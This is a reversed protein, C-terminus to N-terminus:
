LYEKEKFRLYETYNPVEFGLPRIIRVPIKEMKKFISIALRHAGDLLQYGTLNDIEFWIKKQNIIYRTKIKQSTFKGVLIPQTIDNKEIEHYLNIFNNVSTDAQRFIGKDSDSIFKYYKTKKLNSKKNIVSDLFDIRIDLDYRNKTHLLNPDLTTIKSFKTLINDIGWLISNTQPQKERKM